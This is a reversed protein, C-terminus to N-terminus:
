FLRVSKGIETETHSKSVLTQRYVNRTTFHRAHRILAARRQKQGLKAEWHLMDLLQGADRAASVKLVGFFFERQSLSHGLGFITTDTHAVNTTSYLLKSM